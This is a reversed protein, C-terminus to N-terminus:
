LAECEAEELGPRLGVSSCWTREDFDLIGRAEEGFGFIRHPMVVLTPDGRRDLNVALSSVAHVGDEVQHEFVCHALVPAQVALLVVMGDRSSYRHVM